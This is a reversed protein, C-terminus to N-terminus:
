LCSVEHEFQFHGFLCPFSNGLRAVTTVWAIKHAGNTAFSISNSVMDSNLLAQMGDYDTIAVFPTGFFNCNFVTSNYLAMKELFFFHGKQSFLSLM